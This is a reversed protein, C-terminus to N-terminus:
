PWSRAPPSRGSGSPATPGPPPSSAHRRPQLRRRLRQRDDGPPRPRAQRRRRARRDLAPGLRVPRPRRQRHGDVQRRPQLRDRPGARGDGPAAPRALRRRGELDNVEHIARPSSRRATPASRWRPSRSPPRTRRPSRRGAHGQPARRALGRDPRRRRVEGRGQGMARHDDLKEKPLPDQKYPMRPEGDPRCLEVFYSADPDGPSSRSGRAWRGRGQRAPRLHDDHVQEGVEEPQPLRHLEPGPDAGRGQPLQGAAPRRGPGAPPSRGPGAPVDALIPRARNM